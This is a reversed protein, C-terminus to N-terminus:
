TGSALAWHHGGGCPTTDPSLFILMAILLQAWSVMASPTKIDPTLYVGGVDFVAVFFPGIVVRVFDDLRNWLPDSLRDMGTPIAEGPSTKEVVRTALFFVTALVIGLWGHTRWPQASLSRHPLLSIPRSGNLM